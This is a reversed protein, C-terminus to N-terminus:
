QLRRLVLNARGLPKEPQWLGLKAKLSQREKLCQECNKMTSVTVNESMLRGWTNLLNTNSPYQPNRLLEMVKITQRHKCPEFVLEIELKESIELRKGNGGVFIFLRNEELLTKLQQEAQKEKETELEMELKQIQKRVTNRQEEIQRKVRLDTAVRMSITLNQDKEYLNSLEKELEM